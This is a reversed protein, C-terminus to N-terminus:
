QRIRPDAWPPYLLGSSPTGHHVIVPFGKPDGLEHLELARGDPTQITRTM